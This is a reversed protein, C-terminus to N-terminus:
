PQGKRLHRNMTASRELAKDKVGLAKIEGLGYDANALLSLIHFNM